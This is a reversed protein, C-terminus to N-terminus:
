CLVVWINWQFVSPVCLQWLSCRTTDSFVAHSEHILQSSGRWKVIIWICTHLTYFIMSCLSTLSNIDWQLINWMQPSNAWHSTYFSRELIKPPLCHCCWILLLSLNHWQLMYRMQPLSIYDSCLQHRYHTQTQRPSWWWNTQAIGPRHSRTNTMYLLHRYCSPWISEYQM